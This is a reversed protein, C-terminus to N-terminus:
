ASEETPDYLSRTVIQGTRAYLRKRFLRKSRDPQTWIYAVPFSRAVAACLHSLVSGPQAPVRRAALWERARTLQDCLQDIDHGVYYRGKAMSHFDCLATETTAVTAPVGEGLLWAVLENGLGDLVAVDAPKNGEPLKGEYLLALGHRPGSSHAHGMDTPRLRGWARSYPLMSYSLLESTKYSAWRGNGTLQQLNLFFKGYEMPPKGGTALWRLWSAVGGNSRAHQGIDLLHARLKEPDRHARRETACPLKLHERDLRGAQAVREASGIHEFALAASGLDYYAVHLMSLWAMSEEDLRGAVSRLVPYVPDVDGTEIELRTFEAFDYLKDQDWGKM